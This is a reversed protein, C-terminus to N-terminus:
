PTELTRKITDQSGDASTVVLRVQTSGVRNVEEWTPRYRAHWAGGPGPGSLALGAEDPASRVSRSACTGDSRIIELRVDEAKGGAPTFPIDLDIRYCIIEMEAKGVEIDARDTKTVHNVWQRTDKDYYWDPRGRVTYARAQVVNKRPEPGAKFVGVGRFYTNILDSRNLVDLKGGPWTFVAYDSVALDPAFDLTVPERDYAWQPSKNTFGDGQDTRTDAYMTAPEFWLGLGGNCGAPLVLAPLAILIGLARRTM